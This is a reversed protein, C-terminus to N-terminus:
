LRLSADPTGGTEISAPTFPAESIRELPVVARWMVGDPPFSLVVEADLAHQIADVIVSSGFGPKDPQKIVPGGTEKWTIEFRAGDPADRFTWDISLNGRANSLAGYKVANTALEHFAMGLVQVAGSKLKVEPGSIQIRESSTGLFPDLQTVILERLDVHQWASKVLLDNSAALARLRESLQEAFQLPTGGDVTQWVIAQVLALLNKARHNLEGMLLQVRKENAKRETIDSVIGAMRVPTGDKDYSTRGFINIWHISDDPWRVQAEFSLVGTERATKLAQDLVQRGDELMHRKAIAVGWEAQATEYGFIEDHRLSRVSTDTTLDLEWIGLDAGDIALQLRAESNRLARETKKSDTVDVSTALFRYPRAQDDYFIRGAGEIYRIQGDPRHARVAFCHMSAREACAEAFADNFVDADEPMLHDMWDSFRGSFATTPLGFIQSQSENWVLEDSEVLWDIIGIGHSRVALDLRDKAERVAQEARKLETIDINLGGFSVPRGAGNRKIWAREDIWREGCQPHHIRFNQEWNDYAGDLASKRADLIHPLDEEHVRTSWDRGTTEAEPSFGYLERYSEDFHFTEKPELRVEWFGAKASKLAFRLQEQTNELARKARREDAAAALFLAPLATLMAFEQALSLPRMGTAAGDAFLGDGVTAGWVAAGTVIVLIIATGRVYFALAAWVLFPFIYWARLLPTGADLFIFGSVITASALLVPLNAPHRSRWLDADQKLFSLVLACVILAGVVHGCWWAEALWMVQQTSLGREFALGGVGILTSVTASIMSVIVLNAMDHITELRADIPLYRKAVYAASLAALANSFGLLIEVWLANDSGFLLGAAFRAVVISPWLHIGGILLGALAVGAAPWVPSGAGSIQAWLLGLTAALWYASGLLLYPLIRRGARRPM